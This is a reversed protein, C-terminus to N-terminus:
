KEPEEVAVSIESGEPLTFMSPTEAAKDETVGTIENIVQIARLGIAATKSSTLRALTVLQNAREELNMKSNLMKAFQAKQEDDLDLDPRLVDPERDPPLDMEEFVSDTNTTLRVSPAVPAPPTIVEVPVEVAASKARRGRTTKPKVVAKMKARPM